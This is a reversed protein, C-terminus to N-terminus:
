RVLARLEPHKRATTERQEDGAASLRLKVSLFLM